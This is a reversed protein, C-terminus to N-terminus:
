TIIQWIMKIQKIRKGFELQTANYIRNIFITRENKQISRFSYSEVNRQYNNIFDYLGQNFM